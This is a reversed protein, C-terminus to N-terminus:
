DTYSPPEPTDPRANVVFAGSALALQLEEPGMEDDLLACKAPQSPPAERPKRQRVPLPQWTGSRAEAVDKWFKEFTPRHKEFWERDRLVTQRRLATLEWEYTELNAWQDEQLPPTPDSAYIYRNEDTEVNTQLTIWGRDLASADRSEGIVEKFQVEVFECAPRDCIEMQWQMQCWYENLIKGDILRSKPCKIEVLRGVLELDRASTFLGDPSVALQPLTRHKIRGLDQITAGLSKELYGKVCPEYRTGWDMPNTESRMVALRPPGRPGELPQGEAKARVLANWAGPGKFLSGVESGTLLNRTEAYWEPTRQQVQTADLLWKWSETDHEQDHHNASALAASHVALRFDLLGDLIAKQDELGSVEAFEELTTRWSEQFSVHLGLPEQKEVECLFKAANTFM